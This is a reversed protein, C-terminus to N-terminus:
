QHQPKARKKNATDDAALAAAADFAAVVQASCRMLRARFTPHLQLHTWGIGDSAFGQICHAGDTTSVTRRPDTFILMAIALVREIAQTLIALPKDNVAVIQQFRGALQRLQQSAVQAVNRKPTTPTM